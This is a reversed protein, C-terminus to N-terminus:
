SIAKFYLQQSLLRATQFHYIGGKIIFFFVKVHIQCINFRCKFSLRITNNPMNILKTYYKYKTDTHVCTYHTHTHQSHSLNSAGCNSQIKREPCKM